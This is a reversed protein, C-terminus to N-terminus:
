FIIDTPELFLTDGEFVVAYVQTGENFYSELGDSFVMGYENAFDENAEDVLVSTVGSEVLHERFGEADIATVQTSGDEQLEREEFAGGGYSYDVQWPLFAYCYMFWNIGTDNVSIIFTKGDEDLQNTLNQVRSEFRRREEYEAANFGVVSMAPPVLMWVRLGLVLSFLIMLLQTLEKKRSHAASFALLSVTALFWGIYYPYLYREFSAFAQEPRFVYLYTVMILLFYPLFGLTSFVGFALCRRRQTSHGSLFAALAVLALIGGTVMVGSGLMTSNQLAFMRPMEQVIMQFHESQESSFLDSFFLIFLESMGANRVGGLEFRNIDAAWALHQAWLLFPVIVAAFGAALVGGAAMIHVFVRRNEPKKQVLADVAMLVAAVLALALATDKTFTLSALALLAPLLRKWGHKAGYFWAILAAGFLFGMPVDALSDLWPATMKVAQTYITFLYPTVFGILAVPVALAWHKKELPALLASVAALQLFNIAAYHQWPVFEMGFFQVFYGLCSLLPPQTATWVWGVEATTYMEHNLKMLKAATGWTSFEDWTLFLPERVCLVLLMVTCSGAFAWFGLGLNPFPKKFRWFRLLLYVAAVVALVYVLGTGLALQGVMGFLVVILGASCVACLPALASKIGREAYFVALVLFVLLALFPRLDSM